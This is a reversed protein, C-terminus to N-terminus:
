TCGHMCASSVFFGLNNGVADNLVSDTLSFPSVSPAEPEGDKEKGKDGGKRKGKSGKGKRESKMTEDHMAKIEAPQVFTSPYYEDGYDKSATENHRQQFNGDFAAIYTPEDPSM